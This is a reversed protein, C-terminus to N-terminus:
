TQALALPLAVCLIVSLPMMVVFHYPACAVSGKLFPLCVPDSSIREARIGWVRFASPELPRARACRARRHHAPGAPRLARHRCPNLLTACPAGPTDIILLGPLKLEFDKGKRLVDTRKRIADGPVYTAGIQQTIGGAEGEQVSTRRM